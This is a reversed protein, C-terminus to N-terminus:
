RWDLGTIGKATLERRWRSLTPYTLDGGRLTCFDEFTTGNLKAETAQRCIALRSKEVGSLQEEPTSLAGPGTHTDTTTELFEYKRFLELLEGWVPLLDDWAGERMALQIITKDGPLQKAVGLAWATGGSPDRGPGRLQVTVGGGQGTPAIFRGNNIPQVRMFDTIVQPTGHLIIEAVWGM